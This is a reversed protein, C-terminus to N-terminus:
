ATPPASSPLSHALGHLGAQPAAYHPGVIGGTYAAVSSVLVTRGFGRDLMAGIGRSGGTILAPGM